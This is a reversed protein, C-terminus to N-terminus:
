FVLKKFNNEFMKNKNKLQSINFHSGLGRFYMFPFFSFFGFRTLFFNSLGVLAFFSFVIKSKVGLTKGKEKKKKSKDKQQMLALVM